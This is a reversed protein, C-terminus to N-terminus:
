LRETSFLLLLIFVQSQFNEGFVRWFVVPLRLQVAKKFTPFAFQWCTNGSSARDNLVLEPHAFHALVINKSLFDTVIVKARQAVTRYFLPFFPRLQLTCLAYIREAGSYVMTSLKRLNGIFILKMM